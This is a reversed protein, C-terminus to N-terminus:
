EGEYLNILSEAAFVMRDLEESQIKIPKDLIENAMRTANVTDKQMMYILMKRYIPGFRSPVMMNAEDCAELAKDLQGLKFYNDIYLLQVNYESWKDSCKSLVELSEDFQELVNLEAAYNYLFMPYHGMVRNVDEYYPMMRGARGRLSRKAIETWKMEYYMRVLSFGLGGILLISVITRIYTPIVIEKGTKLFAPAIAYISLLWMVSYQYPYSFQCMVFVSAVFSLGMVKTQKDSKLLKRVILVLLTIGIILGVLGYNVTLKIYENFPHTVNDAIMTYPSDPNARFYDAQARMYNTHFGGIGYGFIPHEKILEFSRKWIFVRGDASDQRIYYLLVVMIVALILVPLWIWRHKKLFSSVTDTFALFVAFAACMALFGTRSDALIVSVVCLVSVVISFFQPFRGNNGDFSRSLVFPFMAALVTIFGAPNEFMGTIPFSRHYSPMVKFYQLFGHVLVLLCVITVGNLLKRSKLSDVLKQVGGRTIFCGLLLAMSTIILFYMKPRNLYEQFLGCNIFMSGFLIFVLLVRIM